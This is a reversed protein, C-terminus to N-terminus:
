LIYISRKWRGAAGRNGVRRLGEFRDTLDRARIWIERMTQRSCSSAPMRRPRKFRHAASRSFSPPNASNLPRDGRTYSPPVLALHSLYPLPFLSLSRGRIRLCAFKLLCEVIHHRPPCSRRPEGVVYAFVSRAHYIARTLGGPIECSGISVRKDGLYPNRMYDRRRNFCRWSMDRRADRRVFSERASPRRRRHRRRCLAAIGGVDNDNAAAVAAFKLPITANDGRPVISRSAIQWAPLFASSRKMRRRSYELFTGVRRVLPILYYGEVSQVNWEDEERKRRKRGVLIGKSAM